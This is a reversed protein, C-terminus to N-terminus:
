HSMTYVNYAQQTWNTILVPVNSLQEAIGQQKYLTENTNEIICTFIDLFYFLISYFSKIWGIM